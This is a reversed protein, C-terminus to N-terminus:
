YVEYFKARANYPARPAQDGKAPDYPSATTILTVTAESLPQSLRTFPVYLYHAWRYPNDYGLALYWARTRAMYAVPQDSEPAFDVTDIITKMDTNM